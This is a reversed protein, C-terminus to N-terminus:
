RTRRIPAPPLVIPTGSLEAYLVDPDLDAGNPWVITGVEPHVRVQAFTAPDKLPAFVGEFRLYLRYGGLPRGEVIDKLMVESWRGFPRSRRGRALAIGITKWNRAICRRGSWSWVWFGIRCIGLWCRPLVSKWYLGITATACTSIRRPTTTM